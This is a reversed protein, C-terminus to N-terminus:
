ASTEPLAFVFVTPSGPNGRVFNFGAPGSVVAIYQNGDIEYTVVGGGIGGGTNFRYLVSGTRADLAIFDGTTEGGFVVNGSTTTLAALVPESSRYRWRVEGTTADIATIWGQPTSDLQYAGGYYLRGPMYRVDPATWFTACWDVAGVYLLRTGPNFAPGNWLVGGVLGPCAHTGRETVPAEVNEVTTVPTSYVIEHTDRDLTRLQGDKGVTVVMNHSKGDIDLSLLPSVQTLDWDHSDNPVLQKYWRLAGNKVDLAVLSNTYLNAGPRLAAPLDPAPNTVAVYLEGAAPDLSFPTWIAGGGVKLTPEHGWTEDGEANAGPVTDFKWVPAGDALNFAGVWGSIGNESGAPGILVLDEYIMPAMTFTEGQASDAVRRAWVLEGTAANLALLYGDTTGRVLWGAKIAVGRSNAWGSPAKPEWIHRWKLRCTAADMAVTRNPTTVYMVGDHVIPGSQATSVEGLQLACVVRLHAANTENIQNLAVFRAGTYDHTHYLWDRTAATAGNLEQQSPGGGSPVAEPRGHVFLPPPEASREMTDPSLDLVVEKLRTDGLVLAKEGAPFGNRELLYAIVAAHDDPATDKASGPPMTTTVFFALDDVTFAKGMSLAFVSGKGWSNAFKAGTLAPATAGELNAGHCAACREGYFRAGREAQETTFLGAPPRQCAPISFLLAAMPLARGIGLRM